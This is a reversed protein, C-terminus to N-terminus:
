SKEKANDFFGSISNSIHIKAQTFGHKTLISNIVKEQVNHALSQLMPEPCLRLRFDTLGAQELEYEAKAIRSLTIANPNLGYALRTLLCPKAKQETNDLGYQLGLSRITKKDLKCSALPSIINLEDLAKLGPRHSQMDDANSGDCLNLNNQLAIAHFISFLHKKCFYCRTPSNNKVQDIELVNINICEIAINHQMAWAKAYASEQPPMHVGVAHLLLTKCKALKAAYALFRSDLGGSFAIALPEHKKLFLQLKEWSM